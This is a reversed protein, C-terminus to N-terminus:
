KKYRQVIRLCWMHKRIIKLQAKDAEKTCKHKTTEILLVLCSGETESRPQSVANLGTGKRLGEEKYVVIVHL